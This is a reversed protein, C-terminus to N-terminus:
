PFKLFDSPRSRPGYCRYIASFTSLGPGGLGQLDLTTRLNHLTFGGQSNYPDSITPCGAPPTPPGYEGRGYELLFNVTNSLEVQGLLLTVHPPSANADEYGCTNPAPPPTLSPTLVVPLGTVDSGGAVVEKIVEWVTVASPCAFPGAPKTFRGHITVATRGPRQIGTASSNTVTLPPDPPQGEAPLVPLVVGVILALIPFVRTFKMM